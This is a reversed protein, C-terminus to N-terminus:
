KVAITTLPLSLADATALQLPINSGPGVGAPIVVNIQMVSELLTPVNGFYQVNPAQMGGM